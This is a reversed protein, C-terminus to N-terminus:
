VTEDSEWKDNTAILCSRCPEEFIDTDKYKCNECIKTTATMNIIYDEFYKYSRGDRLRISATKSIIYYLGLPRSKIKTM